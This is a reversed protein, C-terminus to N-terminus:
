KAPRVSEGEVVQMPLLIGVPCEQRGSVLDQALRVVSRGLAGEATQASTMHPMDLVKEYSHGVCTISVDQPCSLGLERLASIVAYSYYGDRAFVASPPRRKKFQKVLDGKVEAFSQGSRVGTRGARYSLKEAEEFALDMAAIWGGRRDVTTRIEKRSNVLAVAEHGLEQLHRTAAFAGQYENGVVCSVPITEQFPGPVIVPIGSEQVEILDEPRWWDLVLLAQVGSDGAMKIVQAASRNEETGDPLFELAVGNRACEAQIEMYILFYVPSERLENMSQRHLVGVRKLKAGDSKAAFPVGRVDRVFTGKGRGRQRVIVGEDVLEQIARRVTMPAAGLEGALEKEPPVAITASYEKRAIRNMLERKIQLYKPIKKAKTAVPVEM